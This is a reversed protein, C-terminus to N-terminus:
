RSLWQLADKLLGELTLTGQQATRAVRLAKDAEARKYGLNLLASLVDNAVQEDANPVEAVPTSLTTGLLTMKEQLELVIREATKRGIGPVAQLRIPEAQAIIQQLDPAAISSLMNLALRPGISSVSILLAFVQREEQTAFGYLRITDERVYTTIWLSVREQHDPLTYYTSLPIFVQYGVGQVDIVVEDVAKSLVLGRLHAIM